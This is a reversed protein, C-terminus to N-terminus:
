GETTISHLVASVALMRPIVRAFPEILARTGPDTLPDVPVPWETITAAVRATIENHLRDFDGSLSAARLTAAVTNLLGDDGALHRFLSPVVDGKPDVMRALRLVQERTADSMADLELMPPLPRREGPADARPPQVPVLPSEADGRAGELLLTILVANCSNGSDYANLVDTLRRRREDTVFEQPEPSFAPTLGSDALRERLRRAGVLVLGPRVRHWCSELRGPEDALVRYVLNPFPMMTLASIDALLANRQQKLKRRLEAAPSDVHQPM